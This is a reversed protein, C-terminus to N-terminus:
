ERYNLRKRPRLNPRNIKGKDLSPTESDEDDSCELSARILFRAHVNIQKTFTSKPLGIEALTAMQTRKDVKKVVYLADSFPHRFKKFFSDNHNKVRVIDEPQIRM